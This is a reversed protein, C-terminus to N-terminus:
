MVYACTTYIDNCLRVSTFLEPTPEGFRCLYIYVRTRILRRQNNNKNNDNMMIILMMALSYIIENHLTTRLCVPFRKRFDAPSIITIKKKKNADRPIDCERRLLGAGHAMCVVVRRFQDDRGGTRTKRRGTDFSIVKEAYARTPCTIIKVNQTFLRARPRLRSRDGTTLTDFFVRVTIVNDPSLYPVPSSSRGLRVNGSRNNPNESANKTWRSDRLRNFARSFNHIVFIM